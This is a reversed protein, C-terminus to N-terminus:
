AEGEMFRRYWLELLLLAWLRYAVKPKGIDALMDKCVSYDLGAAKVHADDLYPIAFERFSKDRFWFIPKAGFGKKMRRRTIGPLLGAVAKRLIHKGELGHLKMGLPVTKAFALINNDLYPVRGEISAAMTAKDAKNLLQNPLFENFEFDMVNQLPSGPRKEYGALIGEAYSSGFGGIKRRTGEDFMTVFRKYIGWRVSSPVLPVSPSFPKYREYGAFLEDSGEGTLVVKVYKRALESVMYVPLSASDWTLDDYHWVLKRVIGPVEEPSVILEHHNTGFHESVARAYAVEDSREGFGVTFTEVPKGGAKSMLGVITSSDIGGSLFAGLPVDSVMQSKVAGELSKHLSAPSNDPAPSPWEAPIREFRTGKGDYALTNGPLLKRIGAFLTRDGLVTGYTLYSSLAEKDMERKVEGHELLCKIESGFVLDKGAFAYYLPKIGARDRALVLRRKKREYIAFAFMGNLRSIGALGWEKWVHLIAETDSKTQFRHGKKALEGRLEMYNYIEGNFVILADRGEDYVPQDGTSLDIISLRRMGLSITDDVYSGESDPGRHSIADTMRKLLKRDSLGFIGTIGCM